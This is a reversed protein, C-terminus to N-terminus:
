AQLAGASTLPCFPAHALSGDRWLVTQSDPQQLRSPLPALWLSAAVMALGILTIVGLTRLRSRNM